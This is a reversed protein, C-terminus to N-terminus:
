NSYLQGMTNAFREGLIQSLSLFLKAAIDPNSQFLPQLREIEFFRIESDELTRVDATRRRGTLFGIEGIIEGANLTTIQKEKEEGHVVVEVKGEEILYLIAESDSNYIVHEEASYKYSETVTQLLARDEDSLYRLLTPGLYEPYLKLM